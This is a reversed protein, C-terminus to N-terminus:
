GLASLDAECEPFGPTGQGEARSEPGRAKILPGRDVAGSRWPGRVNGMTSQLLAEPTSTATRPGARARRSARTPSASSTSAGVGRVVQCDRARKKAEKLSSLVQM